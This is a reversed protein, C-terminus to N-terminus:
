RKLPSLQSRNPSTMDASPLQGFSNEVIHLGGTSGAAKKNAAKAICYQLSTYQAAPKERKLCASEPSTSKCLSYVV